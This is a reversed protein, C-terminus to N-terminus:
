HLSTQFPRKLLESKISLFETFNRIRTNRVSWGFYSVLTAHSVRVAERSFKFKGSKFNALAM